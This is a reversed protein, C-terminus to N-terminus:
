VDVVEASSFDGHGGGRRHARFERLADVDDVALFENNTLLGSELLDTFLLDYIRLDTFRLDTFRLYGYGKLACDGRKCGLGM